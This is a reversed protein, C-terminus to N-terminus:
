ARRDGGAYHLLSDELSMDLLELAFTPVRALSAMIDEVNGDVTLLYGRGERAVGAIGPQDLIGAPPQDAQFVVRIRKQSSGFEDVTRVAAMRGHVIIGVRDVVREVETLNHSSMLVSQDPGVAEGLVTSLFDRRAIPDLGATPEDLILLPPRPALALVLALQVRMGKSLEGARQRLPLRFVDAIRLALDQDWRPYFARLFDMAESVRMYPYVAQEEGVYGVKARLAPGSGALPQGFLRVDGASPESLGVLIRITTTKGAGNPGVLGFVEGCRVQLDLHDVALAEGYRKVLGRTEIALQDM